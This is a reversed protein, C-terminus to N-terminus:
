RFYDIVDFGFIKKVAMALFGLLLTGLFKVIVGNRKIRDYLALTNWDSKPIVKGIIGILEGDKRIAYVYLDAWFTTNDKRKYGKIIHYKDIDGKVLENFHIRDSLLSQSLTITDFTIQKFEVETYGMLDCLSQNAEVITGTASVVATATESDKFLVKELDKKSLEM